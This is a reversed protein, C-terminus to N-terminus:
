WVGLERWGYTAPFSSNGSSWRLDPFAAVAAQHQKRIHDLALVVCLTKVSTQLDLNERKRPGSTGVQSEVFPASNHGEVFRGSHLSQSVV